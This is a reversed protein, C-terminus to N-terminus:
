NIKLLLRYFDEGCKEGNEEIIEFGLKRHLDLSHSNNKQICAYVAQVKNNHLEKFGERCMLSFIGRGRFEPDVAGSFSTAELVPNLGDFRIHVYFSIYAVIIEDIEYVYFINRFIKSYRLLTTFYNPNFCNQYLESFRNLDEHRIRRIIKSSHSFNKIAISGFYDLVNRYSDRFLTKSYLFIKKVM